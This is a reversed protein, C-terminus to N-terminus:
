LTDGSCKSSCEKQARIGATHIGQETHRNTEIVVHFNFVVEYRVDAPPFVIIIEADFTKEAGLHWSM